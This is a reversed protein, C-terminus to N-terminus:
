WLKITPLSASRRRRYRAAAARTSAHSMSIMTGHWPSTIRPASRQRRTSRLCRRGSSHRRGTRDISATRRWTCCRYWGERGTRLADNLQCNRTIEQTQILLRVVNPTTYNATHSSLWTQNLMWVAGAWRRLGM